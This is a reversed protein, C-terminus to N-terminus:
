AFTTDFKEGRNQSSRKWLEPMLLIIILSAELSTKDKIYIYIKENEVLIDSYM